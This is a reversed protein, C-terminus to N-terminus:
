KFFTYLSNLLSLIMKDFVVRLSSVIKSLLIIKIVLIVLTILRDILTTTKLFFISIIDDLIFEELFISM